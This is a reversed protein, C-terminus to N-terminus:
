EIVATVTYGVVAVSQFGVNLLFSIFPAKIELNLFLGIATSQIDISRDNLGYILYILVEATM